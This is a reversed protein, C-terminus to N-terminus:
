CLQTALLGWKDCMHTVVVKQYMYKTFILYDNAFGWCKTTPSFSWTEPWLLGFEPGRAPTDRIEKGPHGLSVTGSPLVTLTGLHGRLWGIGCKIVGAPWANLICLQGCSCRHEVTSCYPLTMSRFRKITVATELKAVATKSCSHM